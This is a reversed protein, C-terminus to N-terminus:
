GRGMIGRIRSMSSVLISRDQAEGEIGGTQWDEHRSMWGIAEDGSCSSACSNTDHGHRVLDGPGEFHWGSWWECIDDIEELERKRQGEDMSEDLSRSVESALATWSRGNTGAVVSHYSGPRPVQISGHSFLPIARSPSTAQLIQLEGSEDAEHAPKVNPGPSPEAEVQDVPPAEPISPLAKDQRRTLSQTSRRAPYLGAIIHQRGNDDEESMPLPGRFHWPHREEAASEPLSFDEVILDDLISVKPFGKGATPQVKLDLADREPAMPSPGSRSTRNNVPLSKSRKHSPARTPHPPMNALKRIKYEEIQWPSLMEDAEVRSFGAKNMLGSFHETLDWRSLTSSGPRSDASVIQKRTNSSKRQSYSERLKALSPKRIAAHPKLLRQQGLAPATHNKRPPSWNSRELDLPPLRPTENFSRATRLTKGFINTSMKRGQHEASRREESGRPSSQSREESFRGAKTSGECDNKSSFDQMLDLNFDPSGFEATTGSFLSRVADRIHLSLEDVNKGVGCSSESIDEVCSYDDPTRTIYASDLASSLGSLSSATTHDCNHECSCLTSPPTECREEPTTYPSWSGGRYARAPPILLPSGRPKYSKNAAYLSGISDLQHAGSLPLFQQGPGSCANQEVLAPAPATIDLGSCPMTESTTRPVVSEKERERNLGFVPYGIRTESAPV